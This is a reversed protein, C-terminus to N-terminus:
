PTTTTETPTSTFTETDIPTSTEIVATASDTATSMYAWTASPTESPMLSTPLVQITPSPIRTAWPPVYLRQGVHISSSTLCNARQIDTYPIGYVQGLHYLTDGPQIIYTIWTNPAGCPVPTRTPVPPLYIVLGPLLAASHLCNAQSIEATAKKYRLALGDLTDGPLVIHPLWGPPPPCGFPTPPVTPTRTPPLLTPSNVLPLPTRLALTSTLSPTPSSALTPTPLRMNGEALSISFVGFLLAISVLATIIGWFVDRAIRM